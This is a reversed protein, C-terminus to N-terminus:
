SSTTRYVINLSLARPSVSGAVVCATFRVPLKPNSEDFIKSLAGTSGQKALLSWLASVALARATCPM